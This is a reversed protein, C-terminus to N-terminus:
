GMGHRCLLQAYPGQSGGRLGGATRREACESWIGELEEFRSEIIRYYETREPRRRKYVRTETMGKGAGQEHNAYPHLAFTTGVPLCLFNHRVIPPILGHQDTTRTRTFSRVCAPTLRDQCSCPGEGSTPRYSRPFKLHQRSPRCSSSLSRPPRKSFWACAGCPRCPRAGRRRAGTGRGPSSRRWPGRLYPGCSNVGVRGHPHVRGLLVGAQHIRYDAFSSNVGICVFSICKFFTYKPPDM